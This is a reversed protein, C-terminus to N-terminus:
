YRYSSRRSLIFLLLTFVGIVLPLYPSGEMLRSSAIGADCVGYSEFSVVRCLTSLIIREYLDAVWILVSEIMLVLVVTIGLFFERRQVLWRIASNM